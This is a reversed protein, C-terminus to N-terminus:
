PIVFISVSRSEGDLGLEFRTWGLGPFYLEPWAHADAARVEYENGRKTGPLFGIAVRAPIGLSRASMVMATAYQTCYGQKTELFNSLPDLPAGAATLLEAYKGGDDRLPDHEATGIYAPPLGALSEANAGAMGLLAAASSIAVTAAKHFRRRASAVPPADITLM